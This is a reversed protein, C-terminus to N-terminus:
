LSGTTEKVLCRSNRTVLSATLGSQASAVFLFSTTPMFNALLLTTYTLPMSALILYLGTGVLSFFGIIERDRISKSNWTDRYRQFEIRMGVEFRSGLECDVDDALDQSM